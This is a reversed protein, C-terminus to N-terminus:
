HSRKNRLFINGMIGWFYHWDTRLPRQLYAELYRRESEQIEELTRPQEKEYYFPPLLGPKTRTRLERMEPTYLNFYHHSLPRVGVLKMEGRLLNIFMPFEDLWTRRLFRGVTNIRYDREFKGSDDLRQTAYVYPQLYESYSYMTRFKYVTIEKGRKGVRKLKAIPATSPTDGTIPDTVKRMLARYEVGASEDVVEFGARYLRGLVEVRHMTRNRGKTVLFYLWGTTKLKPSVRHWVYHLYYYLRAIPKPFRDYIVQKKVSSTRCNIYMYGGEALSNSAGTLFTDLPYITNLPRKVFLLEYPEGDPRQKIPDDGNDTLPIIHTSASLESEHENMWRLDEKLSKGLCEAYFRRLDANEIDDASSIKRSNQTGPETYNKSPWYLEENTPHLPFLPQKM